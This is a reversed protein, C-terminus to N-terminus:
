KGCCPLDFYAVDQKGGESVTAKLTWKGMMHFYMGDVTIAGTKDSIKPASQMGHAFGHKMGHRMGAFLKLQADALRKDPHQGDFVAFHLTFYKQYPIPDPLKTLKVLFSHKATYASLMPKFHAPKDSMPMKMHHDSTQGAAIAPSSFLLLTVLAAGPFAKMICIRSNEAGGLIHLM